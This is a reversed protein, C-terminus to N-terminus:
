RPANPLEHPRFHFDIRGKLAEDVAVALQAASMEPNKILCEQRIIPVLLRIGDAIARATVRFEEVADPLNMAGAVEGRQVVEIAHSKIEREMALWLAYEKRELRAILNEEPRNNDEVMGDAIDNFTVM